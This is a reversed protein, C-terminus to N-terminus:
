CFEAHGPTGKGQITHMQSPDSEVEVLKELLFGANLHPCYFACSCHFRFAPVPDRSTCFALFLSGFLSLLSSSPVPVEPVIVLFM